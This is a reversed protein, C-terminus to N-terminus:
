CVECGKFYIFCDDVMTPRFLSAGRLMWKMKYASQHTGCLGEQVEGMAVKAQEDGLCKLLLDDVMRHYLEDDLITYRLAQCRLKQDKTNSPDKICERIAHRLDGDAYKIKTDDKASEHEEEHVDLAGCMIPSERVSLKGKRLDYGSAQQAMMNAVENEERPIHSIHFTNFEQVLSLCLECYQNLEGDLCQAEGAVQQVVLKSDGFTEVNRVRMEVFMTLGTALAEYEAQNNTCKFEQQTSTEQVMGRPSVIMCGIGCGQASVLGDFFLKLPSAEVLCMGEEKIGHDVIFNAVVQGKVVQLPEYSLEYEVVSYDWKGMQGSLIPKQMMHKLMDCQCVITCSSTYIYHRFMSSAYYLALFLREVQSYRTEADLMRRSLYAIDGEKDAIDQMLVAGLVRDNAAVYLRFVVGVKPMQLVPPHMLYDKIRDFAEQQSVGLL